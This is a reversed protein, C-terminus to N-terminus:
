KEPPGVAETSRTALDRAMEEAVEIIFDRSAEPGLSIRRLEEFAEHYDAIREASAPDALVLNGTRAGELYLVDGLENDFGLLTFPGTLGFHAGADFRIIEITIAPQASLEVLHRLQEPMLNYNRPAGVRRRIVAEDLVYFQRPPADRGLVQEQRELRLDVLDRVLESSDGIYERTIALAYEPTQLLGPVLLGQAQRIIAAGSEYGVFNLYNEDGVNKYSSWWGRVRAAKALDVLETIRHQQKLGYLGVLARLDTTSIGVAGGEIRILKSLSWDLEKVVEEQSLHSAARLRRLESTLLARQIVPAQSQSM